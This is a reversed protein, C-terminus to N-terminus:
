ILAPALAVHLLEGAVIVVAPVVMQGSGRAVSALVNVLWVAVAGGFVVNSYAIAAALAEGDGGMARYLAAGGALAGATFLAAMVLGIVVAHAALAHADARRGAGLARAIASSIGGGIGGASMTVMLMWVPFVLSVGALAEAGLRSVFFADFTTSATQVLVVVINPAALRLLTPLVPATLLRETRSTVQM